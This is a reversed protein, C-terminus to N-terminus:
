NNTARIPVKPQFPPRSAELRSASLEALRDAEQRDSLQQRQLAAISASLREELVEFQRRPELLAGIPCFM